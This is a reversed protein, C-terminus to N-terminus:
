FGLGAHGVFWREISTALGDANDDFGLVTILEVPIEAGDAHPPRRKEIPPVDLFVHPGYIGTMPIHHVGRTVLFYELPQFTLIDQRVLASLVMAGSTSRRVFVQGHVVYLNPLRQCFEIMPRPTVYIITSQM